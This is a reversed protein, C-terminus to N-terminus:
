IQLNSTLPQLHSSVEEAEEPMDANREGRFKEGICLGLAIGLVIATLVRPLLGVKKWEM